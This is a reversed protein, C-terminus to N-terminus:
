NGKLHNFLQFPTLIFSKDIGLFSKVVTVCTFPQFITRKIEPPATPEIDIYTTCEYIEEAPGIQTCHFAPNIYVGETVIFCHSFGPM